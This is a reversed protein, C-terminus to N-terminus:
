DTLAAGAAALRVPAREADPAGPRACPVFEGPASWLMRELEDEVGGGLLLVGAGSTRWIKASLTCAFSLRGPDAVDQLDYYVATRM